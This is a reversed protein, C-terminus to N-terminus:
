RTESPPVAAARAGAGIRQRLWAIVARGAGGDYRPREDAFADAVTAFAMLGHDTKPVVVLRALGPRRANVIEAAREAEVRGMIWDYEGWVVLAPIGREALAAWAGEVDLQQVAHFYAAPRGYQHTPEDYWLPRLEPHAALVEAPTRRDLLYEAYFRAFGRMATNVETPSRGALTLRRREIDLMHEYWTRSFGGASIVGAIGRPSESALVPALAGGISGGLLFIRTTDVDPRARLVRLAARPAAREDELGGQRCDPGESDGVGPKEVRMLVMGSEMAVDRILHAFGDDGPDPKEVPDCSLWPVFLVAPLRVPGAHEPRTVVTRLLYGRDSRIAGYQVTTGPIREHPVSDIVFRLALTEASTSGVRPRLVRARVTDGGRVARYAPWFDDARVVVTNDLAVIRDGARLGAGAAPSGPEVRRVVAGGNEEPPAISAGWQARRRLAGTAELHSGTAPGGQAFLASAAALLTGLLTGLLTALRIM